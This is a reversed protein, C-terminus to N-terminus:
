RDFQKIKSTKKPPAFSLRERIYRALEPTQGQVRVDTLWVSANADATGDIRLLLRNAPVPESFREFFDRPVGAAVELWARHRPTGDASQLDLTITERADSDIRNIDLESVAVDADAFQVELDYRGHAMTVRGFAQRLFPLTRSVLDPPVPEGNVRASKLYSVHAVNEFFLRPNRKYESADRPTRKYIVDDTADSPVLAYYGDLVSDPVRGYNAKVLLDRREILFPVDQYLLYAEEANISRAWTLPSYRGVETFFVDRTPLEAYFRSCIGLTDINELQLMFPVFGAQNYSVKMGAGIRDRAAEYISNYPGFLGREDFTRARWWSPKGEEAEFRREFATATTISWIV